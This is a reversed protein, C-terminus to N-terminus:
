YKFQKGHLYTITLQMNIAASYFFGPSITTVSKVLDKKKGHAIRRPLLKSVVCM